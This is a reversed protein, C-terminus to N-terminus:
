GEIALGYVKFDGPTISSVLRCRYLGEFPIIYIGDKTIAQKIKYDEM